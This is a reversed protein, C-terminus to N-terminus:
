KDKFVCYWWMTNAGTRKRDHKYLNPTMFTTASMGGCSHTVYYVRVSKGGSEEKIRRVCAHILVGSLWVTMTTVTFLPNKKFSFRCTPVTIQVEGKWDQTFTTFIFSTLNISRHFLIHAKFSLPSYFMGGSILIWGDMSTDMCLFPPSTKPLLTYLLYHCM